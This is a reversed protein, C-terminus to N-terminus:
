KVQELDCSSTLATIFGTRKRRGFPVYVRKGIMAKAKLNEPVTYTFLKNAPINLAVNVYM